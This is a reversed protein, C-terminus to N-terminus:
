ANQHHRVVFLDCGARQLSENELRLIGVRITATRASRASAIGVARERAPIGIARLARLRV